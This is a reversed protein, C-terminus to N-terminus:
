EGDAERRAVDLAFGLEEDRGSIEGDLKRRLTEELARGLAPSEPVGAALLDEGTVELRVGRLDAVFRHIPGAPAGLALVLALTEPPECRLLAHLASDPPDAHLARVLGPAQRAAAMVAHRDARALGLSEVWDELEDPAASVLAALAAFGRDAGTEAAGLAASAALEPAVALAPHLARDVGLDRVRELARPADVERLLDMLEDRIRPGSVTGLAGTTVAERALEETHPDMWSGLRAEYRVARLLRTADDVFSGDHLVRIVGADLDDRGGHPDHLEGLDDGSLGVAMANITFDRRGLDEALPAPEVDPLAGPRAYRERRTTALDATLGGAHVTATGFRHHERAEGGVRGALTRAAAVADGEVAIDLDVSEVGRLMDRVAGGVLYAPPLGELAPLLEDLGPLERVREALSV